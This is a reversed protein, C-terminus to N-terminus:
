ILVNSFRQDKDPDDNPVYVLLSALMSLLQIPAFIKVTVIICFVVTIVTTLM